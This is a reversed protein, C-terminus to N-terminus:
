VFNNRGSSVFQLTDNILAHAHVRKKDKHYEPILIYQLGKRQVMNDLWKSVKKLVLPIDSANVIEDNFTITLDYLKTYHISYSTIVFM